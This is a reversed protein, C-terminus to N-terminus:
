EAIRVEELISKVDNAWRKFIMNYEPHDIIHQFHLPNLVVLMTEDEEAFLAVKLPLYAGMEPFEDTIAKIENHKGFFVIRYRDTTYGAKELGIDVRQVRSLTYQHDIIANQLTTMAEPFPLRSRVMIVDADSAMVPMLGQLCMVILFMFKKM